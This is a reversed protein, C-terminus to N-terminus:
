RFSHLLGYVLAESPTSFHVGEEFIRFKFNIYSSGRQKLRNVIKNIPIKYKGEDELAGHSMFLNCGTEEIISKNEEELVLLEDLDKSIYPSSAIYNSFMKPESFLTYLVFLGGLSHGSLTRKSKNIRYNAELYLLLEDKIFNLFNNAGGSNNISEIYSISYDRERQNIASSFLLGGYGIGVIIVDPVFESYQLYRIVSWAMPFAIDGDLLYIVPYTKNIEQDYNKPLKIFIYFSDNIKESYIIKTESYNLVVELSDYNPVSKQSVIKDNFLISIIIIIIYKYM